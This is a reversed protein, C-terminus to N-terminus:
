KVLIYPKEWSGISLNIYHGVDFYDTQSDSRNWNGTNLIKVIKTLLEAVDGDFNSDIWFTNVDMRDKTLAFDYGRKTATDQSKANFNGFFDVPGSKITMDISLHNSVRLSYKLGSDKLAVKLAAAIIKKKEQSMYAM